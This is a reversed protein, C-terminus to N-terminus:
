TEVLKFVMFVEYHKSFPFMDFIRASEIQYDKAIIEYDSKLTAANCSSYILYKPRLSVIKEMSFKGVGRRPPNVLICDFFGNVSEWLLDVDLAKFEVNLIQNIEKSHNASLIAEASIEVGLVHEVNEAAYFSFAGVGCFLDLMKKIEKGKLFHKLESYLLRAIPSTVQFFSKVGLHIKHNEYQHSIWKKETLLIEEDGELIASHNPQINCSIVEINPHALQLKASLKKIRDLSEKSRLVFRLLINQTTDSKTMLLFKLEGKKTELDYPIINFELLLNKIEPLLSNIGLLHLPCDELSNFERLSNTIGFTIVGEISSVALKAKNRSHAPDELVAPGKYDKILDKNFYNFFDAEKIKISNEYSTNLYDCSQCRKEIYANCKM